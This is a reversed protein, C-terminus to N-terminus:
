VQLHWDVSFTQTVNSQSRRLLLEARKWEPQSLIILFYWSTLYQMHPLGPILTDSALAPLPTTNEIAPKSCRIPSRPITPSPSHDLVFLPRIWAASGLRGLFQFSTVSTSGHYAAARDESQGQVSSNCCVHHRPSRSSRRGHFIMPNPFHLSLLMPGPSPVVPSACILPPDPSLRPTGHIHPLGGEVWQPERRGSEWEVASNAAQLPPVCEQRTSACDSSCGCCVM